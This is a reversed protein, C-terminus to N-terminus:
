NIYSEATKQVSEVGGKSNIILLNNQYWYISLRNIDYPEWFVQGLM